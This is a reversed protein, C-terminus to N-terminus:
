PKARCLHHLVIGSATAVNLSDFGPAMPIRVSELRALADPPLGPGEAGFLVAMRPKPAVEDLRETGAPSTALLTFGAAQLLAIIADLSPALAFPVITAAGASVRIAKRYLPDCSAEDILVLDVGFAAANRFLGGMNDHNAIGSLVMVLAKAKLAAVAAEAAIPAGRLGMALIGRHLPFGAVHDIIERSAAYVPRDSPVLALLDGLRAVRGEAILVSDLALRGHALAARLVVEGEIVFRGGRGKLDRDRIDRYPEIRPDSPDTVRIVRGGAGEGDKAAMGSVRGARVGMIKDHAAGM